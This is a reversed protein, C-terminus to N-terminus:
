SGIRRLSKRFARWVRIGDRSLNATAARLSRSLSLRASRKGRSEGIAFGGGPVCLRPRPRGPTYNAPPPAQIRAARREHERAPPRGGRDSAIIVRISAQSRLGATKVNTPARPERPFRSDTSAKASFLLGPMVPTSLM